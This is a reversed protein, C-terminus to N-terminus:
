GATAAVAKVNDSTAMADPKSSSWIGCMMHLEHHCTAARRRCVEQATLLAVLLQPLLYRATELMSPASPWPTRRQKAGTLAASAFRGTLETGYLWHVSCAPLVLPARHDSAAIDQSPLRSANAAELTRHPMNALCVSHPM